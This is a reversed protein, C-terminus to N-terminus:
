ARKRPRRYAYYALVVEIARLVAIRIPLQDFGLQSDIGQLRHAYDRMIPIPKQLTVHTLGRSYAEPTQDKIPRCTSLEPKDEKNVRASFGFLRCILGRHVYESCFGSEGPALMSSLVPCLTKEESLLRVHWSELEGKVYLHYALPLFELATAHLDPKLCCLGCGAICRMDTSKQFQSIAQDLDHFVREM